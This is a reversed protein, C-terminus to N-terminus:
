FYKDDATTRLNNQFVILFPVSSLSVQPQQATCTLGESLLPTNSWHGLDIVCAKKQFLTEM